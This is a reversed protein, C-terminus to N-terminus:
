FLGLTLIEQDFKLHCMSSFNVKEVIAESQTGVPGATQSYWLYERSVLTVQGGVPLHM